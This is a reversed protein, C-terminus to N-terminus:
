TSLEDKVSQTMKRPRGRKRKGEVMADVTVEPEPLSEADEQKEELEVIEVQVDPEVIHEFLLSWMDDDAAMDVTVRSHGSELGDAITVAAPISYYGASFAASTPPLILKIAAGFAGAPADKITDTQVSLAIRPNAGSKYGSVMAIKGTITQQFM